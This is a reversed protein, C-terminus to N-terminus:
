VRFGFVTVDDRQKEGTKYDDFEGTLEKIIDEMSNERYKVVVRKFRNYGFPLRKDSGPQDFFGDTVMYYSVDEEWEFEHIKFCAAGPLEGEGLTLREGKITEVVEDKERYLNINAGAFSLKKTEKEIYVIALDTGVPVNFDTAGEESNLVTYLTENLRWLIEDVRRVGETEIIGQLLYIVMVSLLAGPMGHGTCDGFVIYGGEEVSNGWFVDGSVLEVPRSIHFKDKLDMQKYEPVHGMKKQLFRAYEMSEMIRQNKDKLEVFVEKVDEDLTKAIQGIERSDEMELTFDLDGQSISKAATEIRTLPRLVWRNIILYEYGIGLLLYIIFVMLFPGIMTELKESVRSAPVSSVITWGTSEMKHVSGIRERGHCIYRYPGTDKTEWGKEIISAEEIEKYSKLVNKEEPHSLITGKEDLIITRSERDKNDRKIINKLSSIRVDVGFAGLLMHTDWDRIPCIISVVWEDTTITRYLDSLYPEDSHFAAEAWARDEFRWGEESTMVKGSSSDEIITNSNVDGIWLIENLESAKATELQSDLIPRVYKFYKNELANSSDDVDKLYDQLAQNYRAQGILQMDKEFYRNLRECTLEAERQVEDELFNTIDVTAINLVFLIALGIGLIVPLFGYLLLQHSLSRKRKKEGDKM